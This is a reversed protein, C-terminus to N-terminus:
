AAKGGHRYPRNANFSHKVAVARGIDIKLRAADDLVRIIIDALEEEACTLVLCGVSEMEEAKDCPSNLKNNRHAEWLESVEGHLNAVARTLFESDSEVTDYWGKSKSLSHIQDRLENLHFFEPALIQDTM